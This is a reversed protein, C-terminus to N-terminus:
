EAILFELIAVLNDINWLSSLMHTRVFGNKDVIYTVILHDYSEFEGDVSHSLWLQDESENTEPNTNPDFYYHWVEAVTDTQNKNGLLFQWRDTKNMDLSRYESAYHRLDDMTDNMYDFDISIFRVNQEYGKQIIKDLVVGMKITTLSCGEKGPCKTYMWAVVRVLGQDDSLTYNNGETNPLTFDPALNLLPLTLVPEDPTNTDIFGNYFSSVGVGVLLVLLLVRSVMRANLLDGWNASM